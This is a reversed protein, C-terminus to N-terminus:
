VRKVDNEGKYGLKERIRMKAKAYESIKPLWKDIVDKEFYDELRIVEYKPRDFIKKLEFHVTADIGIRNRIGFEEPRLHIRGIPATPDVRMGKYIIIDTDPNVRTLVAWFIEGESFIDVDEDVVIVMHFRHGAFFAAHIINRQWGEDRKRKKEVQIVIGLRGHFFPPMHVNKVFGPYTRECAELVSAEILPSQLNIADFSEANIVYFFPNNRFTIGTVNFKFTKYAKGMYGTFEPFFQAMGLGEEKIKPTEEVVEKTDIYGELVIESEAICYADVTEAKCIKVAENQVAGAIALEDTGKPMLMPIDGGAATLMVGPPPTINVTIPLNEGREYADLIIKELHTGIVFALTEFNKGLVHQRNFSIHFGGEPTKALVIGSGLIRGADNRTYKLVPVYKLIDVKEGEIVNDKCPADSVKEPKILNKTRELITKPMKKPNDIGLVKAVRERRSFVNTVAKVNSYGKIKEMIIAPGEEFFIQISNMEYVPDVEKKLHVVEGEKELRELVSRIDM